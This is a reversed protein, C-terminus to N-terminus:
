TWCRAVSAARSDVSSDDDRTSTSSGARVDGAAPRFSAALAARVRRLREELVEDGRGRAEPGAAPLGTPFLNVPRPAPPDALAPMLAAATLLIGLAGPRM